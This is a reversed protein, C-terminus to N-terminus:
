IEIGGKFYGSFWDFSDKVGVAPIIHCSTIHILFGTRSGTASKPFIIKVALVGLACLVCLVFFKSPTGAPIDRLFHFGMEDTM